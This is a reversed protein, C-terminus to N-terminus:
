FHSRGEFLHPYPDRLQVYSGFDVDGVHLKIKGFDVIVHNLSINLSDIVVPFCADASICTSKLLLKGDLDDRASIQSALSQIIFYKPPAHALDARASSARM